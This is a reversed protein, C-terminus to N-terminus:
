KPRVIRKDIMSVVDKGSLRKTPDKILLGNVVDNLLKNTTDLVVKKNQIENNNEFPFKLIAGTYLSVGLSWMDSAVLKIGDFGFEPAIYNYSGFPYICSGGKSFCSLGFDIIKPIYTNDQIMINELKIDNHIINNKHIYDLGLSVDRAILLLYYYLRDKNKEQSVFELMNLGEILEMEILFTNNDEDYYSDYYCIIFPTCKPESLKKLIDVENKLDKIVSEIDSKDSKDSLPIKMVKLAITKSDSKRIAQYVTGFAGEGLIYVLEYNNELLNNSM